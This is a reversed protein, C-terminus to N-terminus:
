EGKLKKKMREIIEEAKKENEKEDVATVPNTLERYSTCIVTRNEQGATNNTIYRLADSIYDEFTERRKNEVISSIVHDIIYDRGLIDM